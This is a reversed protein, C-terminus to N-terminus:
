QILDETPEGPDSGGSSVSTEPPLASPVDVASNGKMIRIPGGQNELLSPVLPIAVYDSYYYADTPKELVPFRYAPVLLRSDGSAVDWKYVEVYVLEPTGLKIDVTKVSVESPYAYRNQNQWKNILTDINTEVDYLSAEYQQLSLGHLSVVKKTRVNINVYVGQPNAGQDYVRTGEISLPYVVSVVEPLYIVANSGALDVTQRFNGSVEGSGYNSLNIQYKAIFEDALRTLDADPPIESPQIPRYIEGYDFFAEQQSLSLEGNRLDVSVRLGNNGGQYMSINEFQLNSISQLNALGLSFQGSLGGVNAVAPKRRLVELQDEELSLDDGAYIYRYETIEYSEPFGGPAPAIMNSGAFGGGGSQPRALDSDATEAALNNSGPGSTIGVLDGFAGKPLMTITPAAEFGIDTIGLDGKGSNNLLVPVILLSALTAGGILFGFKQLLNMNFTKGEKTLLDARLRKAFNKDFKTDPRSALLKKIIKILEKENNELLPDIDYLESLIQKIQKDM